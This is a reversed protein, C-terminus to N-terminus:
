SAEQNCLDVLAVPPEKHQSTMKDNTPSDTPDETIEPSSVFTYLPALMADRTVTQQVLSPSFCLETTDESGIVSSPATNGITTSPPVSHSTPDNFPM